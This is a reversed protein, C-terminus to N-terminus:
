FVQLKSKASNEKVFDNLLGNVAGFWRPAGRSVM